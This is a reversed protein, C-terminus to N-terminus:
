KELVLAVLTTPSIIFHINIGTEDAIEEAMTKLSGMDYMMLIGKGMDIEKILSKLENYADMAEKDLPLNYAYVKNTRVLSKVVEVLSSATQNGHMAILFVPFDMM